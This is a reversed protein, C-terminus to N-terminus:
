VLFHPFIDLSYSTHTCLGLSPLGCHTYPASPFLTSSTLHCLHSWFKGYVGYPRLSWAFSTSRKEKFCHLDTSPLMATFYDYCIQTKFSWKSFLNSSLLLLHLSITLSYLLLDLPFYHYNLSLNTTISISSFSHFKYPKRIFQIVALLFSPSPLCSNKTKLKKTYIIPLM